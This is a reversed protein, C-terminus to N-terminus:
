IERPQLLVSNKKSYQMSLSRRQQKAMAALSHSSQLEWLMRHATALEQLSKLSDDVRVIRDDTTPIDQDIIVAAAGKDLAQTAFENGNFNPGSLAFFLEGPQLTRTDTSVGAADRFIHYLASM